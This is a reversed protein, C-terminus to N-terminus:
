RVVSEITWLHGSTAEAHRAGAQQAGEETEYWAGIGCGHRDPDDTCCARYYTKPDAWALSAILLLALTVLLPKTKTVSM